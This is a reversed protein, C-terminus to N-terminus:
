AAAVFAEFLALMSPDASILSEPHWQVGVVFRSGPLEIAEVVGDPAIASITFAEAPRDVAQHHFSNVRAQPGLISALRTEGITEIGHAV